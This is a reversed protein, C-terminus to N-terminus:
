AFRPSSQNWRDTSCLQTAFVSGGGTVVTEDRFGPNITDPFSLLPQGQGPMVRAVRGNTDWFM